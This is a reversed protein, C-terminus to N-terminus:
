RGTLRALLGRRTFRGTRRHRPRSAAYAADAHKEYAALADRDAQTTPTVAGFTARERTPKAVDAEKLEGPNLDGM